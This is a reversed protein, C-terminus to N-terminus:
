TSLSLIHRESYLFTAVFNIVFLLVRDFCLINITLNTTSKRFDFTDAYLALAAGVAHAIIRPYWTKSMFYNITEIASYLSCFVALNCLAFNHLSICMVFNFVIFDVILYV